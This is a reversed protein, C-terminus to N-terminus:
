DTSRDNIVMVKYHPYELNCVSRLAERLHLAENRVPIIIVVSPLPNASFKVRSLMEVRNRNIVLYVCAMIWFISILIGYIQLIDTM